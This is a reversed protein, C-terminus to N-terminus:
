MFTWLAWKRPHSCLHQRESTPTHGRQERPSGGTPDRVQGLVPTGQRTSVLTWQLESGKPNCLLPTRRTLGAKDRGLQPLLSPCPRAVRICQELDHQHSSAARPRAVHVRRKPAGTGSPQFYLYLHSTTHPLTYKVHNKAWQLLFTLNGAVTMLLLRCFYTKHNVTHNVYLVNRKVRLKLMNELNDHNIAM